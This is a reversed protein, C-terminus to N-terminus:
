IKAVFFSIECVQHKLTVSEMYQDVASSIPNADNVEHWADNYDFMTSDEMISQEMDMVKPCNVKFFHNMGVLLRNGNRLLTRETIQKGNVCIRCESSMPAVFLRLRGGYEEVTMKAHRRM